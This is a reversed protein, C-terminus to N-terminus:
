RGPSCAPIGRPVAGLLFAMAWREAPDPEAGSDAWAREFDAMSPPGAGLGLVERTIECYLSDPDDTPRARTYVVRCPQSNRSQVALAHLVRTKGLGVEGEITCLTPVREHVCATVEAALAHLLEARGYLPLREPDCTVQALQRPALRHYGSDAPMTASPGLVRAMDATVLVGQDALGPATWTHITALAHGALRLGRKGPRATLPAIHVVAPGIREMAEAVRLATQLAHAAAQEWPFAFVYLQGEAHAIVADHASALASIQVVPANSRVSLLVIPRQKPQDRPQATAPALAPARAARQQIALRFAIALDACRAFREAPDKALCSLVAADIAARDITPDAAWPPELASPAPCRRSMHASRVTAMDGDFPRRGTLLEFAIVGLAYIDSRADVDRSSQWQEPAMYHYTGLWEHPSTLHSDPDGSARAALQALGLDIITVRGDPRLMINSPKLDRHVIGAAHMREVTDCLALFWPALEEIAITSRQALLQALSQEGLYEMALFPRGDETYGQHVLAPTIPPGLRRLATAERAMRPDGPQHAVKVAIQAAHDRDHGVPRALYVAACGGHGILRVISFADIM